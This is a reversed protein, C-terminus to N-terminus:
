GARDKRSRINRKRSRLKRKRGYSRKMRYKISYFINLFHQLTNIQVRPRLAEIIQHGSRIATHFDPGSYEYKKVVDEHLKPLEEWVGLAKLEIESGTWIGVHCWYGPIFYDTLRFPAKELLIDMWERVLEESRQSRKESALDFLKNFLLSQQGIYLWNRLGVDRRCDLYKDVDPIHDSCIQIAVDIDLILDSM